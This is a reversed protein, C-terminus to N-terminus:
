VGRGATKVEGSDAVKEDAFPLQNINWEAIM